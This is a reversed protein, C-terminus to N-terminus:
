NVKVHLVNLLKVQLPKSEEVLVYTICVKLILSHLSDESELFLRQYLVRAFLPAIKDVWSGPTKLMVYVALLSDKRVSRIVHTM